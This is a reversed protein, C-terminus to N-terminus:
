RYPNKLLDPNVAFCSSFRIRIVSSSIYSPVCAPSGAIITASELAPSYFMASFSVHSVIETYSCCLSLEPAYEPNMIEKFFGDYLLKLGKVGTCLNLFEDQKQVPWNNFKIQLTNNNQIEALIEQRERIIPFYKKLKSTM